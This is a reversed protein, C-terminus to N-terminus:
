PDYRRVMYKIAFNLITEWSEAVQDNWEPDTRRATALVSAKWLGYFEPRIDLHSRDHTRARARLEELSEPDGESAGAILQLSRLLMQHQRQFDTHRFAEAVHKSTSIFRVYFQPIFTKSAACRELSRQYTLRHNVETM